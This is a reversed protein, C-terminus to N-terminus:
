QFGGDLSGSRPAGGGGGAGAGNQLAGLEGSGDIDAGSGPAAAILHLDDNPADVYDTEPGGTDTTIENIWIGDGIGTDPSVNDRTRTYVHYVSGGSYSIAKGCDTIHCRFIKPPNTTASLSLALNLNYFSCGIVVAGFLTTTGSHLIGTGTNNGIFVCNVIVGNSASGDLLIVNTNAKFRCSDVVGPNDLLLLSQHLTGSCEFDCAGVTCTNDWQVCRASGSNATNTVSCFFLALNDGTSPGLISGAVGGTIVCHSMACYGKFGLSGTVTIVPFNTTDLTGDANRGQGQLDGPVVNYGEYVIMAGNTGANTMTLAGTAYAGSQINVHDSAVANAYAEAFTWPNGISGDGGGAAAATVYKESYAV